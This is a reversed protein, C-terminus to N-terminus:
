GHPLELCSQDLGGAAESEAPPRPDGSSSPAVPTTPRRLVALAAPAELGLVLACGAVLMWRLRPRM